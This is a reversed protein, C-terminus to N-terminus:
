QTARLNFFMNLTTGDGPGNIFGHKCYLARARDNRADVSLVIRSFGAARAHEVFDDVLRGAIGRGHWDPLVSVNTIFSDLRDPANAYGAVLGVLTAGSWSEFLTAHTALKTSYVALDVRTSLPPVFQADCGRLHAGIARADARNRDFTLAM